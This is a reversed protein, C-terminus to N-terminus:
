LCRECFQLAFIHQLYGATKCDKTILVPLELRNSQRLKFKSSADLHISMFLLFIRTVLKFGQERFYNAVQNSLNEVEEFTYFVDNCILMTKEPHKTVLHGFLQPVTLNSKSLHRMRRKVSLLKVGARFLYACLKFSLFHFLM